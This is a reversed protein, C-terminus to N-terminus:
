SVVFSHTRIGRLEKEGLKKEVGKMELHEEQRNIQETFLAKKKVKIHQYISHDKRKNERERASCATM